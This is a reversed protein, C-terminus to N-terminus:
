ITAFRGILTEEHYYRWHKRQCVQFLRIMGENIMEVEKDLERMREDYMRNNLNFCHHSHRGDIAIMM